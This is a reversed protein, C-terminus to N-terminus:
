AFRINSSFPSILAYIISFSLEGASTFAMLEPLLGSELLVLYSHCKLTKPKATKTSTVGLKKHDKGFWKRPPRLTHKCFRIVRKRGQKSWGWPLNAKGVCDLHIGFQKLADRWSKKVKEVECAVNMVDEVVNKGLHMPDMVFDHVWDFYPLVTFAPVAYVGGETGLIDSAEKAGLASSLVQHNQM